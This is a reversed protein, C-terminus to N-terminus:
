LEIEDQDHGIHGAIRLPVADWESSDNQSLLLMAAEYAQIRAQKRSRTQMEDDLRCRSASGAAISKSSDEEVFISHEAPESEFVSSSLTQSDLDGGHTWADQEPRRQYAVKIEHPDDPIDEKDAVKSSVVEEEEVPSSRNNHDTNQSQTNQSDEDGRKRKRSARLVEQDAVLERTEQDYHFAQESCLDGFLAQMSVEESWTEPCVTCPCIDQPRLMAVFHRLENYSSHRSYPFHITDNIEAQPKAQRHLSKNQESSDGGKYREALVAFINDPKVSGDDEIKVEDSANLPMSLEGTRAAQALEQILKSILAKENDSRTSFTLLQQLADPDELKLETTPYLDRWGGGAGLERIESGDKLRSIIPSIWIVNKNNKIESHCDLGPECSHIRATEDM